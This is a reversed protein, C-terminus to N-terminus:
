DLYHLLLRTFSVVFSVFLGFRVIKKSATKSINCHSFVLNYSFSGYFPDDVPVLMKELTFLFCTGTILWQLVLMPSSITVAWWMGVVPAAPASIYFLFISFHLGRLLTIMLFMWPSVANPAPDQINEADM